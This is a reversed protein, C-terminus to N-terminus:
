NPSVDKQEEMMTTPDVADFLALLFPNNPANCFELMCKGSFLHETFMKESYRIDEERIFNAYVHILNDSIVHIFNIGKTDFRGDENYSIEDVPYDKAKERTPIFAYLSFAIVSAARVVWREIEKHYRTGLDVLDEESLDPHTTEIGRHRLMLVMMVSVLVPDEYVVNLTIYAEVLEKLADGHVIEHNTRLNNLYSLLREGRLVSDSANVVFYVPEKFSQKLAQFPIPATVEVRPIDPTPNTM